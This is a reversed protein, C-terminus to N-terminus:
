EESITKVLAKYAQDFRESLIKITSEWTANPAPPKMKVWESALDIIQMKVDPDLM